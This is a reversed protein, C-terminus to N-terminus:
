SLTLSKLFNFSNAVRIPGTSFKLVHLLREKKKISLISIRIMIAHWELTVTGVTGYSGMRNCTEVFERM